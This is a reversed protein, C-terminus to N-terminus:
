IILQRALLIALGLMVYFSWVSFSCLSKIQHHFMNGAPKVYFLDATSLTGEHLNKIFNNYSKRFAHEMSLYYTDLAMFLVVPLYALFVYDFKSKDAVVVLIASVLTICWTKCASSNNAMRQIVSQMIGLHIQVSATAENLIPKECM